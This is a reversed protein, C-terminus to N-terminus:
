EVHGLTSSKHNILSVARDRLIFKQIKGSGTLPWDEANVFFIYRPIKFRALSNQCWNWLDRRSVDAGEHLEIFAAGIETTLPDPVGVVYAQKVAPHQSLIEEVEKPAVNEGSVKFLDKSRGLFEIYGHEDIRGLDGSRFWGDKDFAALTEESKNYYGRSVINGRVTLEGISGPPLDQGTDPDIVKYEVNAGDFEPLGSVGGPKIRGVRTVVVSIPDGVETHTTSATVETGGYGTCIETLGFIDVAKQWVPVPAPAAACMLAYLHSWDYRDADPHNVLSILMSPVCLVDHVQYQAMLALAQTPQFQPQLILTGGVFSSALVGEELAFVHYLPLPTFIRRGDEFARSLCTSYACRLFNDHTLMVGKPHGTSGSTYIIAAVEDPYRSQRWRTELEDDAIKNGESVFREWPMFPTAHNIKSPTSSMMIIHELTLPSHTHRSAHWLEEIIHEHDIRGINDQFILIRVDAQQIIYNLEHQLLMTNLPVAVAGVIDIAIWLTMFEPENPLLLAIHDRRRVGLALLAKALIWAEDWTEQYTLNRRPSVLFPRQSYLQTVAHLHRAITRRTWSPVLNMLYRRRDEVPHVM